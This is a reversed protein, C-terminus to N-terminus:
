VEKEFWHHAYPEDNFPAVERYGSSRYLAIAETLTRNTELRLRTFGLTRAHAELAELMRRGVGLGRAKEAVWMRKLYGTGPAITKVGGCAVPEGDLSAVLFVGQPPVMEEDANPLSIGPDFGHEFRRGLEAFYQAVCWRARPKAPHVAEIRVGAARLMAEVEAMGALLRARQRESLPELLTVAVDDSLRDQAQYEALGAPTLIARRVRRDEALPGVAILGKDTLSRILRSLYGSDLDLRARLDRLDAGGPGIEHLVRSEGLSRDRGLYREDLAGIRQTVLRNFRRVQSVHEPQM